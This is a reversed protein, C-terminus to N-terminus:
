IAELLVKVPLPLHCRLGTRSQSLLFRDSPEDLKDRFANFAMILHAQQRRGALTLLMLKVLRQSLNLGNLGVFLRAHLRQLREM